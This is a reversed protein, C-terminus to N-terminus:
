PSNMLNWKSSSRNSEPLSVLPEFTRSRRTAEYCGNREKKKNNKEKKRISLNNLADKIKGYKNFHILYNGYSNLTAKIIDVRYLSSM